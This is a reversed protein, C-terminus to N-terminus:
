VEDKMDLGGLVGYYLRVPSYGANNKMHTGHGKNILFDFYLKADPDGKAAARAVYHTLCNGYKDQVHRSSYDDSMKQFRLRTEQQIAEKTKDMRERSANKEVAKLMPGIITQFSPVDM